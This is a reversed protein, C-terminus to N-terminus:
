NESPQEVHDIVFVEVAGKAAELKLGPQEQVATFLLPRSAQPDDSELGRTWELTFAFDGTLGTEDTVPRRLDGALIKALINMSMKEVALQGMKMTRDTEANSDAAQMRPGTKGVVLNYVPLQRTERHSVLQFRDALLAQIMKLVQEHSVEGAGAGARAEIDFGASATWGPGGAIQYDELGYAIRLLLDVTLNKASFRGGPPFNITLSGQTATPRISAVEFKAGSTQALALAAVAISLGITKM